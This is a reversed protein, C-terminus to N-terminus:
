LHPAAASAALMGRNILGLVHAGLQLGGSKQFLMPPDEVLCRSTLRWTIRAALWALFAPSITPLLHAELVESLSQTMLPWTSLRCATKLRVLFTKM